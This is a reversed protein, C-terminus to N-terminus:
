FKGMVSSKILNHLFIGGKHGKLKAMKIKLNHM